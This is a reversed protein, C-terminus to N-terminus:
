GAHGNREIASREISDLLENVAPSPAAITAAEDSATAAPSDAIEGVLKTGDESLQYPQIPTPLGETQQIMGLQESMAKQLAEKAMEVEKAQGLLQLYQQRFRNLQEVGRRMYAQMAPSLKHEIRM